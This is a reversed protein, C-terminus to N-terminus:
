SVKGAVFSNIIGDYVSDNFEAFDFLSFVRSVIRKVHDGLHAEIEDLTGSVITESDDDESANGSRVDRGPSAATLTRGRLGGHRVRIIVKSSRDVGLFSYLRLCYLLAETVRVIQTDFFLQNEGRTDEFLSGAFYFDGNRRIAWYDFSRRTDVEIQAFIGDSRPRPRLGDKTMHLAIPWGFTHIPAQRSAELLEALEKEIKASALAACVEMFGTVRNRQLGAAVAARQSEIWTDDLVPESASRANTVLALRRQIRVALSKRFSQLDSDSWLLIDYGALDFHVKPGDPLRTPSDPLHDERATLVLNKFKDLGMSYGIELYVNPRENTLDAVLIESDQIFRVIESKLLGGENNRDVRLPLLGADVIGPEIAEAYVRDMQANGIQMIVFAQGM